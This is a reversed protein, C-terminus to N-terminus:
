LMTRKQTEQQALVVRFPGTTTTWAATPTGYTTQSTSVSWTTKSLGITQQPSPVLWCIPRQASKLSFIQSSRKMFGGHMKIQKPTRRFWTRWPSLPMVVPCQFLFVNISAVQSQLLIRFYEKLSVWSFCYALLRRFHFELYLMLVDNILLMYNNTWQKGITPIYFLLVTWIHWQYIHSLSM